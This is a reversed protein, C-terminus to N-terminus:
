YVSDYLVRNDSMLNIVMKMMAKNNVIKNMSSCVNANSSRALKKKHINKLQFYPNKRSEKM